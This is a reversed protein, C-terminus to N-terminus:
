SLAGRVRAAVDQGATQSIIGLVWDRQTQRLMKLRRVYESRGNSDEPNERLTSLGTTLLWRQIRQPDTSSVNPTSSAASGTPPFPAYPMPPPHPRTRPGAEGDEEDIDDEVTAALSRRVPGYIAPDDDESRQQSNGAQNQTQTAPPEGSAPVDVLDPLSDTPDDTDTGGGDGDNEFLRRQIETGEPESADDDRDEEMLHMQLLDELMGPPADQIGLEEGLARVADQVENEEELGAPANFWGLVRSLLGSAGAIPAAAGATAANLLASIAGASSLDIGGGPARATFSSDELSSPPPLVDSSSTPMNTFNRPLLGILAPIELLMIHRADELSIELKPAPPASTITAEYHSLTEAVEVILSTTEPTNWVDKTRSVYLETYLKEADTNPLQAWLAKPLPSIDLASALASVIYPYEHIALALNQRALKPQSTRLYALSLSIQINPLHSWTNGYASPASLDILAGYQRGRLALQDIMLTVGFPDGLTDLQLLLKSWEFATRWTGRMGLNQIYRWIALYLERNRPNSFPLRAAGERLAAPFTSHVSRGFSFLARELLDGSLFHDGQHKVIESVQILTAIHYPNQILLEVMSEAQMSEVCIRFEQQTEIYAANHVISFQKQFSNVTREYEMSLGGSTALPWEERGQIFVNRRNALTGLERGRSAPSYRGALATGLDVGGDRNQGRERRLARVSGRVSSSGELAINGFLSKMENAPNLAKSDISLLKTAQLEWITDSKDLIANSASDAREMQPSELKTSLDNLAKDIEDIGDKSERIARASTTAEPTDKAKKRQKKKKKRSSRAPLSLPRSAEPAQNSVTNSRDDEDGDEAESPESEHAHDLMQFANLTARLTAKEPQTLSDQQKDYDTEDIAAEEVELAALQKQQDQERQLKRLARSSM